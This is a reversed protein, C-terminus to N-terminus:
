IGTPDASRVVTGGTGEGATRLVAIGGTLAGAASKGSFNELESRVTAAVEFDRDATRVRCFEHCRRSAQTKWEFFVGAIGGTGSETV